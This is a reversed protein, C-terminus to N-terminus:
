MQAPPVSTTSSHQFETIAASLIQNAWTSRTSMTKAVEVNAMMRRRVFVAATKKVNM